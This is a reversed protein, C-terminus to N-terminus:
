WRKRWSPVLCTYSPLLHVSLHSLVMIGAEGWGLRAFLEVREWKKNRSYAKGIPTAILERM